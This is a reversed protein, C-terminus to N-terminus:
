SQTPNFAYEKITGVKMYLPNELVNEFSELKM